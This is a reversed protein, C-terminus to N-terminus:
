AACERRFVTYPKLKGVEIATVLHRGRDFFRKRTLDRNEHAPGRAISKNRQPLTHRDTGTCRPRCFVCASVNAAITGTM